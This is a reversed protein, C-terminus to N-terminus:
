AGNKLAWRDLLDLLAGRRITDDPKLGLAWEITERETLRSELFKRAAWRASQAVTSLKEQRVDGPARVPQSEM